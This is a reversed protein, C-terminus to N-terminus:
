NEHHILRTGQWVGDGILQRICATMASRAALAAPSLQEENLSCLLNIRLADQDNVRTWEFRQRADKVSGMVAWPQIVAGLGAALAAMTMPLSDVDLAIRPQVHARAFAADLVSRLGHGVTPLILPEDALEALSAAEPLPRVHRRRARILFLEEEFLPRVTWTRGAFISHRGRQDFLIAMDLERANLMDALMGSMGGVMHLRVDPYRARLAAVLPLGLISETTAPLGISVSGTLRPQQASRIAQEAHRLTLKAERFFATGAETPEVGRPNRKLLRTGLEGELRSIQQSLASQVMDLEIAARSMSGLEVIRIFYRLQRLEM